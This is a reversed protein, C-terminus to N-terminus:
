SFALDRFMTRPRLVVPKASPPLSRIPPGGVFAAKSTGSASAASANSLSVAAERDPFYVVRLLELTKGCVRCRKDSKSETEGVKEAKFFEM